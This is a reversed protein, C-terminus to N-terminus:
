LREGNGRVFVVTGFKTVTTEHEPWSTRRSKLCCNLTSVVKEVQAETDAQQVRWTWSQMPEGSNIGSDTM